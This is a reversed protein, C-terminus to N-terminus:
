RHHFSRPPLAPNTAIRTLRRMLEELPGRRWRLRLLTPLVLALVITAWGLLPYSPLTSRAMVPGASAVHAVYVTLSMSGMAQLPFSWWAQHRFLLLCLCIVALSGATTTVLDALGASHSTPDGILCLVGRIGGQTELLSPLGLATHERVLTGAVAVPACLALLAVQRRPSHLVLRHLLLGVSMYTMWGLLPYPYDLVAPVPPYFTLIVAHITGSALALVALALWLTRTRWRPMWAMALYAMGFAELVVQIPGNVATLVQHLLILVLGRVLLSHRSTALAAGGVRVGRDSMLALSIGALVAFLASPFGDTVTLAPGGTALLHASVMGILALARAVDLGIVRQRAPTPPLTPQQPDPM